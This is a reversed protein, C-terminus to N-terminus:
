QNLESLPQVDVPCDAETMTQRPTAQLDPVFCISLGKPTVGTKELCLGAEDLVIVDLKWAWGRPCSHDRNPFPPFWGLAQLPQVLVKEMLFIDFNEHSPVASDTSSLGVNGLSSEEEALSWM